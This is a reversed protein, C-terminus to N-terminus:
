HIPHHGGKQPQLHSRLIRNVYDQIQPVEFGDLAGEIEDICLDAFEYESSEVKINEYNGLNVTVSIRM